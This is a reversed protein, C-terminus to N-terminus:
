QHIRRSREVKREAAAPAASHLPTPDRGGGGRACVAAPIRPRQRVAAQPAAIEVFKVDVHVTAGPEAKEFLKMQRLVRRRTRWLQPLRLDRFHSPGHGDGSARDHVRRLSLQTRQAGYGLDARPRRARQGTPDRAPGAAASLPARASGTRGPPMASRWRRIPRVSVGFRRSAASSGHVRAFHLAMLRQAAGGDTRCVGECRQTPDNAGGRPCGFSGM